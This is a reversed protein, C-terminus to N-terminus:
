SMRESQFKKLDDKLLKLSRKFSTEVKNMNQNCREDFEIISELNHIKLNLLEEM